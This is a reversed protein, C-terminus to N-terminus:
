IEWYDCPWGQCGSGCMLEAGHTGSTMILMRRPQPPGLYLADLALEEGSPGSLPHTVTRLEGGSQSAADLFRQRAASYDKAFFSELDENIM